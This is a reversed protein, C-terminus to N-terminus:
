RWVDHFPLGYCKVYEAPRLKMGMDAAERLWEYYLDDSIGAHEERKKDLNVVYGSENFPQDYVDQGNLTGYKEALNWADEESIAEVYYRQAFHGFYKVVLYKAM